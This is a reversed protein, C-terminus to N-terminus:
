EEAEDMRAGCNPCYHYDMRHLADQLTKFGCQSCKVPIDGFIMIEGNKEWRGHKAPEAKYDKTIGERKFIESVDAQFYEPFGNDYYAEIIENLIKCYDKM